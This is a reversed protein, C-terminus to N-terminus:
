AARLVGHVALHQHGLQLRVADGHLVLGSGAVVVHHHDIGAAEDVIGLLFADIGNQGPGICLIASFHLLDVNGAAEALAVRGLELVTDRLDISPEAGAVHRAQQLGQLGIVLMFQYPLPQEGRRDM